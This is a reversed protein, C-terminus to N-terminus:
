DTNYSLLNWSPREPRLSRLSNIKGSIENKSFIQCTSDKSAIISNLKDYFEDYRTPGPNSEVDGSLKLLLEVFIAIIYSLIPLLLTFRSQKPSCILDLSDDSTYITAFIFLILLVILLLM